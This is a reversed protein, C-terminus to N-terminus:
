RRLFRRRCLGLAVLWLVSLMSLGPGGGSVRCGCGGESEAPAVCKGDTCIDEGECDTNFQCEAIRGGDARSPGEGGDATDGGADTSQAADRPPTAGAEETQLPGAEEAQSTAADTLRSADPQGADPPAADAPAADPQEGTPEGADGGGADTPHGADPPAGPVCKAGECHQDPPCVNDWHNPEPNEPALFCAGAIDDELPTRKEDSAVPYVGDLISQDPDETRWLGLVYLVQTTLVGQIDHTGSSLDDAWTYTEGNLAIGFELFEGTEINTLGWISAVAVDGISPDPPWNEYWIIVNREDRTEPPSHRHEEAGTPGEYKFTVGLCPINQVTEFAAQVAAECREFSIDGCGRHNLWYSIEKGAPWHLFRTCDHNMRANYAVARTPLLFAVAFLLFLVPSRVGPGFRWSRKKANGQHSKVNM